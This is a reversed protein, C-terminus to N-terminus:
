IIKKFPNRFIESFFFRERTRTNAVNKAVTILLMIHNNRILFGLEVLSPDEPKTKATTPIANPNERM